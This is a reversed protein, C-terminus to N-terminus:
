NFAPPLDAKPSIAVQLTGARQANLDWLGTALSLDAHPLDIEMPAVIGAQKAKAFQAQNLNLTMAGGTWNAPKGDPGYAVVDVRIKAEQNGGPSATFFMSDRPIQFVIKYRTIPGPLKGNGGARPTGSAPQSQPTVQVRYVIETANPMGAALLPVLPDANPHEPHQTGSDAFYGRRYTLQSKGGEALKVEIRRFRSDMKGSTPTYSVTYYHAGERIAHSLAAAVDNTTYIAKGGTDIALQEMTATNARIAPSGKYPTRQFDDGNPQGSSDADLTRDVMMGRASVPYLAIRAQTLMNVTTSLAEPLEHGQFAQLVARNDGEPFLAVPFTGAVWILNKRGPIGELSRALQQLATLTMSGSQSRQTRAYEGLSRAQALGSQADGAMSIAEKDSLDDQRSRSNITTGPAAAKSDVAARLLAGDATFGQLLKLRTNLAYVAVRTGPQLSALFRAIQKHANAQDAEETNLSDLLLVSVPENSAVPPQNSYVNPPLPPLNVAPATASTHEEFFDVTQPKGDELVTFDRQLLGSISETGSTVLIDVVVARTTTKLVPGNSTANDANSQAGLHFASAALLASSLVLTWNRM